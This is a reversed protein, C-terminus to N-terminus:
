LIFEKYKTIVADSMGVEKMWTITMEATKHCGELYADREEEIIVNKETGDYNWGIMETAYLKAKRELEKNM